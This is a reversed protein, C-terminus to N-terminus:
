RRYFCSINLDHLVERNHLFPLLLIIQAYYMTNNVATKARRFGARTLMVVRKIQM